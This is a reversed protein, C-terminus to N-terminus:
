PAAISGPFVDRYILFLAGAQLPIVFFLPVYCPLAALVGILGYLLLMGFLGWFNRRVGAWSATVADWTQMQKEVILAFAFLFPMYVMMSLGIIGIVTPAIVTAVVIGAIEENPQYTAVLTIAAIAIIVLPIFIVLAFAFMLLTVLLSPVFYDFGRFLTEFLTREGNARQSFCMHIGCALPGLLINVPVIANIVLAVFCIGVFLLYQDGMLDKADSLRSWPRIAVRSPGSETAPQQSTPTAYPNDEM